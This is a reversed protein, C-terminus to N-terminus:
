SDRPSPSTYLLCTPLMTDPDGPFRMWPEADVVRVRQDSQRFLRRLRGTAAFAHKSRIEIRRMEEPLPDIGNQGRPREAFRPQEEVAVRLVGFEIRMFTRDVAVQVTTGVTIELVSGPAESGAAVTMPMLEPLREDGHQSAVAVVVNERDLM